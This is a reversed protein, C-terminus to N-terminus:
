YWAVSSRVQKILISALASQSIAVRLKMQESDEAREGRSIMERYLKAAEDDKGQYRDM